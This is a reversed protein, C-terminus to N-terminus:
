ALYRKLANMKLKIFRYILFNENALFMVLNFAVLENVEDNPFITNKNKVVLEKFILILGVKNTGKNKTDLSQKPRM